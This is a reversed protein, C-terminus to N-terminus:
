ILGANTLEERLSNEHANNMVLKWPAIIERAKNVQDSKVLAAAYYAAILGLLPWLAPNKEYHRSQQYAQEFGPLSEAYKNERFQIISNVVPFMVKGIDNLEPIRVTGLMEKARQLEGIRAHMQAVDLTNFADKKSKEYGIEIHELAKEPKKGLYYITALQNDYLGDLMHSYLAVDTFVILAYELKNRAALSKAQAGIIEAHFQPENNAWKNELLDSTISDVDDWRAEAVAEYMTNFTHVLAIRKIIFRVFLVSIIAVTIAIWWQKFFLAIAIIIFLITFAITNAKFADVFISSVPDKRAKTYLRASTGPKIRYEPSVDAQAAATQEDYLLEVDTYGERELVALLHPISEADRMYSDHKGKANTATFLYPKM